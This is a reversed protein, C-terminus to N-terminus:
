DDAARPAEVHRCMVACVDALTPDIIRYYAFTGERRDGVLGETCLHRLHKSVNAHSQGAAEALAQVHLEGHTYLLSLLRLRTPDGLLRFRAAIEDLAAPPLLPAGM